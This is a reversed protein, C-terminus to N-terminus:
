KLHVVGETACFPGSCFLQRIRQAGARNRRLGMNWVAPQSIMKARGWFLAGGHLFGYIWSCGGNVRSFFSHPSFLTHYLASPSLSLSPLLFSSSFCPLYVSLCVYPLLPYCSYFFLFQFSLILPSSLLPSLHISFLLTLAQLSVAHTQNSGGVSKVGSSVSVPIDFHKPQERERGRELECLCVACCM